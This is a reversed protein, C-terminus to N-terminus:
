ANFGKLWVSQQGRYINTVKKSRLFAESLYSKGGSLFDVDDLMIVSRFALSDWVAEIEALQHAQSKKAEEHNNDLVFDYSDLYIFDIADKDWDKLFKISDDVHFQVPLVRCIFQAMKVNDPNLDVSHFYGGFRDVYDGFIYTSMGDGWSNDARLCGTEVMMPQDKTQKLIHLALKMSAFRGGLKQYKDFWTFNYDEMMSVGGM